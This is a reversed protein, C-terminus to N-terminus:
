DGNIVLFQNITKLFAYDNIVMLWWKDAYHYNLWKDDNNVKLQWQFDGNNVKM